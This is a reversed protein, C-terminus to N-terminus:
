DSINEDKIDNHKVAKIREIRMDEAVLVTFTLDKYDVSPTEGDDPIGGLLDTVFGGMTDFDTDDPLPAGLAEM